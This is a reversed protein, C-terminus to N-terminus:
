DLDSYSNTLLIRDSFTVESAESNGIHRHRLDVIEFAQELAEKRDSIGGMVWHIAALYAIINAQLASLRGAILTNEFGKPAKMYGREFASKRDSSLKSMRAVLDNCLSNTTTLIELGM